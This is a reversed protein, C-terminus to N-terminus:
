CTLGQLLLSMTYRIRRPLSTIEVLQLAAELRCLWSTVSCIQTSNRQRDAVSNFINLSYVCVLSANSDRAPRLEQEVTM